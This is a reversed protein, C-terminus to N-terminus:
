LLTDEGMPTVAIRGKWRARGAALAAAAAFPYAVEVHLLDIDGGAHLLHRTLAAAPSLLSRTRLWPAALADMTQWMPPLPLVGAAALAGGPEPGATTLMRFDHGLARVARAFDQHVQAGLATPGLG